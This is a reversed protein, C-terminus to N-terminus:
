KMLDLVAATMAKVGTRLTPEPVPAFLSSHLSPLAIGREQSEKVKVPDVAGLWFIASPIKQELSLYGFDESGMVPSVKMVNEPGLATKFAGALREMLQPDNYTASTIETESVKVIPARDEPIGAAAAVGKTIREISALIRKRVDEKYSRVTLQLNVEDPIINYRTGGHISGVTVVAPDLPSNERSIITQLAMVVQAAVVIPDKTAEPKSGHGGLGRIKIDIGTASAMAYGPVYGVKGTEIDASDHLAIAFDPKPFNSYLGDRLVARAGDITEEAPQGLIILTGHWEGKREALVKATGLMSTMHIDHGCAHMVSVEVGADNKTKVKSAYPVGTKEEVPLADLETRILVTPGAGNKLIGVVGYGTWEPKEYKGIHETVTYGLKRLEGAFFAATKEEHHSLEPAAHLMKYTSLLWDITQQDILTDYDTKDLTELTPHSMHNANQTPKSGAILLFISLLVPALFKM